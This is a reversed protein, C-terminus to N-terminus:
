KTQCKKDYEDIIKKLKACKEYEEYKIYYDILKNAIKVPEKSGFEKKMGKIGHTLFLNYGTDVASRRVDEFFGKLDVMEYDGNNKNFSYM